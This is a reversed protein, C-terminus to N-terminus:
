EGNHQGDDSGYLLLQYLTESIQSAHAIVLKILFTGVNIKSEISM